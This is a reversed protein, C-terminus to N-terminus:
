TGHNWSCGALTGGDHRLWSGNEVEPLFYVAKLCPDGLLRKVRTSREDLMEAIGTTVVEHYQKKGHLRTGQIEQQQVLLFSYSSTTRCYKRCQCERPGSWKQKGPGWTMIKATKTMAPPLFLGHWPDRRGKVFQKVPTPNKRLPFGNSMLGWQGVPLASIALLSREEHREITMLLRSLNKIIFNNWHICVFGHLRSRKEKGRMRKCVYLFHRRM